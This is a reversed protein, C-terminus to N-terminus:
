MIIKQFDCDLRSHNALLLLSLSISTTLSVHSEYPLLPKRLQVERQGDRGAGGGLLEADEAPAWVGRGGLGGGRRRQGALEAQGVELLEGDQAAPVAAGYVLDAVPLRM